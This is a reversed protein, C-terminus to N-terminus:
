LLLMFEALFLGDWVEFSTPLFNDVFLMSVFSLIAGFPFKVSLFM